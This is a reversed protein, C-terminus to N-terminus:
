QIREELPKGRNIKSQIIAKQELPIESDNEIEKTLSRREQPNELIGDHFSPYKQAMQVIAQIGLQKFSARAVEGGATPSTLGKLGLYTGAAPIAKMGTLYKLGALKALPSKFVDPSLGGEMLPKELFSGAKEAFGRPPLLTPELQPKFEKFDPPTPETIPTATGYTGKILKNFKKSEEKGIKTSKKLGEELIKDIRPAIENNFFSHQKEIAKLSADYMGRDSTKLRGSKSFGTDFLFDELPMIKERIQQSVEGSQLKKAFDKTGIGKIVNKLNAKATSILTNRAAEGGVASVPLQGFITHIDKELSSQLKPIIASYIKSNEFINSLHDGLHTKFRSFIEQTEPNSKKIIEEIAKYKAPLENASLMEGEPFLSKLIRVTQNGEKTGARVTTNIERNLFGPIDIEENTFRINKPFSKQAEEVNKLVNESHKAQATARIEPHERIAKEYAEKQNLNSQKIAQEEALNQAKISEKRAPFAREIGRRNAIKNLYNAGIDTIKGLVASGAVEGAVQGPEELIRPGAHLATLLPAAKFASMGRTLLIDSGIGAAKGLGSKWPSRESIEEGVEQLARQKREYQPKTLRAKDIWDEAMGILSSRAFQHGFEGFPSEEIGKEIKEKEVIKRYDEEDKPFLERKHKESLPLEEGTSLLLSQNARNLKAKINPEVEVEQGRRLLEKRSVM